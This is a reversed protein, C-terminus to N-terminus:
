MGWWTRNMSSFRFARPRHRGGTTNHLRVQHLIVLRSGIEMCLGIRSRQADHSFWKRLEDSPAIAKLWLDVKADGTSVGRPWLRDVLVRVGDNRTPKDYIRKTKIM